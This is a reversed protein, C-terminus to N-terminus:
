PVSSNLLRTPISGLYFAAKSPPIGPSAKWLRYLTRAKLGDRLPDYSRSTLGHSAIKLFVRYKM